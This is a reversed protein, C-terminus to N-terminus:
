LVCAAGFEHIAGRVATVFQFCEEEIDRGARERESVHLLATRHSALRNRQKFASVFGDSATFPRDGRLAHRHGGAARVDRSLQLAADRIQQHGM